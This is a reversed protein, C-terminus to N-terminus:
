FPLPRLYHQLFFGASSECKYQECLNQPGGPIQLEAVPKTDIYTAESKCIAQKRYLQPWKEM